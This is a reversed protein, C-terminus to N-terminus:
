PLQRKPTVAITAEPNRCVDCRPYSLRRLPTVIFTAVLNRCVDKRFVLLHPQKSISHIDTNQHKLCSAEHISINM